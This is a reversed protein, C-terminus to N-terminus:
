VQILFSMWLLSFNIGHILLKHCEMPPPIPSFLPTIESYNKTQEWVATIGTLKQFVEKLEPADLLLAPQANLCYLSMFGFLCLISLPSVWKFLTDRIQVASSPHTCGALVLRRVSSCATQGLPLNGCPPVPLLMWVGQLWECPMQRM